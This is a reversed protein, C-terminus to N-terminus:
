IMCQIIDQEGLTESREFTGSVKGDKMIIIRDSMGILEPMEESIMIIAKGQDILKEMLRYIFEKVGIDIGRTPCDLILIDSDNALWKAIVVKQKNGGSLASVSQKINRMKVQMMSANEDALKKEDGHFVFVGKKLKEMASICINEEITSNIMLSEQDRNKSLYAIRNKMAVGPNKIPENSPVMVITGSDPKDLGFVMRGIQHMGCDTLGGIGLVEGKHLEFSVHRVLNEFCVDQVKLVVDGPKRVGYDERYYHQGLERGIMLSKLYNENLDKKEVTGTYTGDRMVSVGDSHEMLEEIDHSICIVSKGANALDHMVGYLIDRGRQSLATTTEDIILIEPDNYLARGVELLKRDEFSLSNVSALPNVSGLQVSELVKKAATNMAKRDVVGKKSFEDELGLFINDAVSLNNITAMEQVIMCIKHDVADMMNAPAYEKGKYIIKGSDPKHVGMVVNAITSKGSGNEGILGRIEGPFFDISVDTLAKTSGFTKTIQCVQLIPEKKM